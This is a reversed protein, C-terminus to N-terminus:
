DPSLAICSPDDIGNQLVRSPKRGGPRVVAAAGRNVEELAIYLRMEPDFAIADPGDMDKTVAYKLAFTGPVYVTVTNGLNNAVFLNRSSDFALAVPKDIGNTITQLLQTSNPAYVTVTNGCYGINNAVYLQDQNDLALTNPCEVGDTITRLLQLSNHAYVTISQQNAVYINGSKDLALTTIGNASHAFTAVLKYQPPSFVSVWGGATSSNAVYANGASDFAIARPGDVGNTLTQRVKTSGPAYIGVFGTTPESKGDNKLSQSSSWWQTVVFLYHQKNFVIQVPQPQAITRIPHPDQQYTNLDYTTVAGTFNAVYLFERQKTNMIHSATAAATPPLENHSMDTSAVTSAVPLGECGAFLIAVFSISLRAYGSSLLAFRIM